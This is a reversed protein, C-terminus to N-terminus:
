CVAEAHELEAELGIWRVAKHGLTRTILSEIFHWTEGDHALHHTCL